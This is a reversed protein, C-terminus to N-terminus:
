KIRIIYRVRISRPQVDQTTSLSNSTSGSHDHSGQVDTGPSASGTDGIVDAGETTNAVDSAGTGSFGGYVTNPSWNNGTTQHQYARGPSAAGTIDWGIAAILSGEGHTHSDVTHSHGGDSSIPHSHELNAQHSANGVPATAWAATDIDGGGETGFGVLYRNSMDPLTLGNLPSAADAVVSGDCYAYAGTDFSVTGNFDYFPLITGVPVESQRRNAVQTDSM